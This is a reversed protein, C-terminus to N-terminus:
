QGNATRVLKGEVLQRRYQSSGGIHIVGQSVEAERIAHVMEKFADPWMAFHDIGGPSMGIHKEICRAGMSVAIAPIVTSETHDSLGVDGKTYRGLELLTRLNMDEPKAPYKSVCHMLCLNKHYKRITSVAKWIDPFGGCGCSLYVRKGTQAVRDILELHDIEFSSIKYSAIGMEEAIGVTETDYVTTFFFLGLSEAVNKLIPVWDYPMCTKEYLEWLTQGSWPGSRIQFRPDDSKITLSGPRYMQVKVADAGAQKAALVLEIATSFDQNHSAGIEAIVQTKTGNAM